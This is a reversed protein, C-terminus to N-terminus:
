HSGKKWFRNYWLSNLGAGPKGNYLCVLYNNGAAVVDVTSVSQTDFVQESFDCAAKYNILYAGKDIGYLHSKNWSWPDWAHLPHSHVCKSRAATQSGQHELCINGHHHATAKQVTKLCEDKKMTVPMDEEFTVTAATREGAWRQQTMDKTSTGKYGDFASFAEGYEWMGQSKSLACSVNHLQIYIWMDM